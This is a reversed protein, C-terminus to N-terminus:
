AASWNVSDISVLTLWHETAKKLVTCYVSSGVPLKDFHAFAYQGNDLTLYVGRAASATVIAKVSDRIDYDMEFMKIKGKM